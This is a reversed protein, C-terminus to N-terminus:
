RRARDLDGEQPTLQGAFVKWNRGAPHLGQGSPSLSFLAEQIVKV